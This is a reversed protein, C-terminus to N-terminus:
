AGELRKRKSVYFEELEERQSEEPVAKILDAAVDLVDLSEAKELADMVQAFTMTVEDGEANSTEGGSAPENKKAAQAATRGANLRDLYATRAVEKEDASKLKAALEGAAALANSDEADKIAKLVEDLTPVKERGKKMSAKVSDTRSAAPAGRPVEDVPGMDRPEGQIVDLEDPTRVGFLVEPTHLRGWRKGSLYAIQQKPDDAWLTSNRTRAQKMLITLVRPESEGRITASCRVGIGEEDEISWAPVRYKQANGFDDKKSKSEREVFNGIVKEWPGFWEWNLRDVLLGSTNIAAIILQAEYGIQGNVFHTKPAVAFPNMGWTLAQITVSACNGPKGRYQQPITDTASAMLNSFREVLGLTDPTLVFPTMLQKGDEVTTNM